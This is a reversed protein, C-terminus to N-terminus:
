PAEWPNILEVGCGEFDRVNRTAVKFGAARAVAAILGDFGELPRGIARRAEIIAAYHAAAGRDFVLVRGSFEEAFMRRADGELDTRRRGQPMQAIGSLIEAEVIAATFLVAKPYSNAFALVSGNPASQMLELVVNTDVVIM